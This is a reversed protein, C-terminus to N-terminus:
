GGILNIRIFHRTRSDVGYGDRNIMKGVVVVWATGCGVASAVGLGDNSQGM